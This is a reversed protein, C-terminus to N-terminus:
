TAQRSNVITEISSTNSSSVRSEEGQKPITILLISVVVVWVHQLSVHYAEEEYGQKGRRQRRKRNWIMAVAEGSKM